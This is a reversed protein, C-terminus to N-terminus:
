TGANPAATNHHTFARVAVFIGLVFFLSGLLFPAGPLTFVPIVIGLGVVDLFLTVFIFSLRPQFKPM